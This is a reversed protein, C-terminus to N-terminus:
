QRDAKKSEIELLRNNFNKVEDHIARVLERTAEMKDEMHRYDARSESRNWTFLGVFAIILILFQSWEM